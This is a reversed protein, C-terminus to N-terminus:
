SNLSNRSSIKANELHHRVGKIHLWPSCILGFDLVRSWFQKIQAGPNGSIALPWLFRLFTRNSEAIEFQLFTKEIDATIAYGGTRFTCLVKLVNPLLNEGQHLCDNLSLEHSRRAGADKIVRTKVIKNDQDTKFVAQLPLFDALQGEHIPYAEEAYGRDLYIQIEQDVAALQAPNKKLKRIFSCLRSGVLGENNGISAINDKFPLSLIYRDQPSRDITHEFFENLERFRSIQIMYAQSRSM